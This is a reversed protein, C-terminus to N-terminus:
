SLCECEIERDWHGDDGKHSVNRSSKGSEIDTVDAM